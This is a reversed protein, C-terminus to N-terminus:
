PRRWTQVQQTFASEHALRALSYDGEGKRLIHTPHNATWSRPTNNLYLTEWHRPIRWNGKFVYDRANSLYIEGGMVVLRDFLHLYSDVHHQQMEQMSEINICIDFFAEQLVGARWSPLIYCDYDVDYADGAYFSGINLEPYQAKLYVYGYMLSAPVADITVYHLRKRRTEIFAEALRGYGGGIECIALRGSQPDALFMTILSLDLISGLDTEIWGNSKGHTLIDAPLLQMHDIPRLFGEYRKVAEESLAKMGTIGVWPDLMKTLHNYKKEFLESTYGGFEHVSEGLNWNWHDSPALPGGNDGM